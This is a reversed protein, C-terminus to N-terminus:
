LLIAEEYPIGNHYDEQTIGSLRTELEVWEGEWITPRIIRIIYYMYYLAQPTTM